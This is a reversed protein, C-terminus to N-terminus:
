GIFHGCNCCWDNEVPNDAHCHPCPIGNYVKLEEKPLVKNYDFPYTIYINKIINYYHEIENQDTSIEKSEINHLELFKKFNIIAIDKGMTYKKFEYLLEYRPYIPYNNKNLSYLHYWDKKQDNSVFIINCEHKKAFELIQNWIIFDGMEGSNKDQDEYGPPINLKKRKEWISKLSKKIEEDLDPIINEKDFLESYKNSLEDNWNYNELKKLLNSLKELYKEVADNLNKELNKIEDYNSNELFVFKPITYKKQISNKYELIKQHAELLLVPRNKVFEKITTSTIFLKNNSKLDQYLKIVQNIDLDKILSKYPLLLINSDLIYICDDKISEANKFKLNLIDDYEQFFEFYNEFSM